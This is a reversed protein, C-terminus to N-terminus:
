CTPPSQVGSKPRSPTRAPASSDSSACIGSSGSSFSEMQWRSKYLAAITLPLSTHNTLFVLTKGSEADKFRTRRLHEPYHQAAYFGNLM